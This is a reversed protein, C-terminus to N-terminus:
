LMKLLKVEKLVLTRVCIFTLDLIFYKKLGRYM